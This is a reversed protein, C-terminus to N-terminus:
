KQNLLARWRPLNKDLHFIDIKDHKVQFKKPQLLAEVFSEASIIIRNWDNIELPTRILENKKWFLLLPLGISYADVVASSNISSCVINAKSIVEYIGQDSEQWFIEKKQIGLVDTAVMKSSPHPKIIFFYKKAIDANSLAVKVLDLIYHDTAELGELLVVVNM